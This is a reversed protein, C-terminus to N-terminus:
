KKCKVKDTAPKGKGDRYTNQVTYTWSGGSCGTSQAFGITKGKVKAKANKFGFDLTRIGTPIGPVPEQVVKDIAVNWTRGSVKGVEMRKVAPAQGAATQVFAGMNGDTLMYAELLLTRKIKGGLADVNTKGSAVKSGKPCVSASQAANVKAASCRAKKPWKKSNWTWGKPLTTKIATSTAVQGQGNVTGSTIQLRLKTKQSPKKKTGAKTSVGTVNISTKTNGATGQNQAYAVSAFALALVGVIVGIVRKRV